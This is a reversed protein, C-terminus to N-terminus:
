KFVPCNYAWDELAEYIVRCTAVPYDCEFEVSSNSVEDKIGWLCLDNKHIALHDRSCIQLGNGARYNAKLFRRDMEYLTFRISKEFATLSYLIKNNHSYIIHMDNFKNDPINNEFDEIDQQSIKFYPTKFLNGDEGYVVQEIGCHNIIGIVGAHGGQADYEKSNLNFVPPKEFLCVEGYADMTFWASGETHHFIFDKIADIAGDEKYLLRLLIVTLWKSKSENMIPESNDITKNFSNMAEWVKKNQGWPSTSELPAHRIEKKEEESIMEASGKFLDITKSFLIDKGFIPQGVKIDKEAIGIFTDPPLFSTKDIIGETERGEPLPVSAPRFDPDMEKLRNIVSIKM